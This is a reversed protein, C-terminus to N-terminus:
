LFHNKNKLHMKISMKDLKLINNLTQVWQFDAEPGRNLVVPTLWPSDILSVFLGIPVQVAKLPCKCLNWNTVKRFGLVVVLVNSCRQLNTHMVSAVSYLLLFHKTFVPYKIQVSPATPTVNSPLTPLCKQLCCFQIIVLWFLPHFDWTFLFCKHPNSFAFAM